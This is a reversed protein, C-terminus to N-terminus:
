DQVLSPGQPRPPGVIRLAVGRYFQLEVDSFFRQRAQMWAVIQRHEEHSIPLEEAGAEVLADLADMLDISPTPQRRPPVMPPAPVWRWLMPIPINLPWAPWWVFGVGWVWRGRPKPRYGSM